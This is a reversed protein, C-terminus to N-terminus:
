SLPQQLCSHLKQHTTYSITHKNKKYAKKCSQIAESFRMQCITHLEQDQGLTMLQQNKEMINPQITKM